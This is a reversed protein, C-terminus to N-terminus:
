FLYCWRKELETYVSSRFLGFRHAGDELSMGKDSRFFFRFRQYLIGFPVDLPWMPRAMFLGPPDSYILCSILNKSVFYPELEVSDKWAVCFGRSQGVLSVMCLQYFHMLSFKQRVSVESIMVESLILIDLKCSTILPRLNQVALSRALGKYNRAMVFM